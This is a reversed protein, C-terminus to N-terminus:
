FAEAPVSMLVDAGTKLKALHAGADPLIREVFYRGTAIKHNYFPDTSGGDIAKQAAVAGQVARWTAGWDGLGATLIVTPAAEGLCVVHIRRGSGLTATHDDAAYALYASDASPEASQALGEVPTMLLLAGALILRRM